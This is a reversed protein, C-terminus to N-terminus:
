LIRKWTPWCSKSIRPRTASISWHNCVKCPRYWMAETVSPFEVNEPKPRPVPRRCFIGTTKVGVIFGEFSSDREMFAKYFARSRNSRRRCSQQRKFNIRVVPSIEKENCLYFKFFPKCGFISVENFRNFRRAKPGVHTALLSIRM